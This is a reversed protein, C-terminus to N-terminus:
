DACDSCICQQHAYPHYPHRTLHLLLILLERITPFYLLMIMRDDLSGIVELFNNPDAHYLAPVFLIEKLKRDYEAVFLEATTKARLAPSSVFQDIM